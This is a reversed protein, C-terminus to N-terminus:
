ALTSFLYQFTLPENSLTSLKGQLFKLFSKQITISDVSVEYHKNIKPIQDPVELGKFFTIQKYKELSSLIFHSQIHIDKSDCIIARDRKDFTLFVDGRKNKFLSLVM